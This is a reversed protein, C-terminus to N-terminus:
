ENDRYELTEKVKARIEREKPLYLDKDSYPEDTYVKIGKVKKYSQYFRNLKLQVFEMKCMWYYLNGEDFEELMAYESSTMGIFRFMRGQHLFTQGYDSSELLYKHLITNLSRNMNSKWYSLINPTVNIKQKMLIQNAM